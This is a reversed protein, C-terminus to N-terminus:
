IYDESKDVDFMKIQDDNRNTKAMKKKFNDVKKSTFLHSVASYQKGYKIILDLKDVLQEESYICRLIKYLKKKGTIDDLIEKLSYRPNELMHRVLDIRFMLTDVNKPSSFIRFELTDGTIHVARYHGDSSWYEAFTKGECFRNNVRRPYMTYLLPLYGQIDVLLERPTRRVDSVHIHGGCNSSHNANVLDKVSEISLKLKGSFKADLPLIPSVLEFGSEENLSGDHEVIWGTAVLLKSAKIEKRVDCDEKEIEIGIRLSSGESRDSRGSGSHYDFLEGDSDRSVINEMCISCFPEDDVRGSERLDITGNCEFCSGAHEICNECFYEIDGYYNERAQLSRVQMTRYCFRCSMHGESAEIQKLFAYIADFYYNNLVSIHLNVGRFAEFAVRSSDANLSFSVLLLRSTLKLDEVVDDIQEDDYSRWGGLVKRSIAYLGIFLYLKQKYDFDTQSIITYYDSLFHNNMLGVQVRPVDLRIINTDPESNFVTFVNVIRQAYKLVTESNSENVFSDSPLGPNDRTGWPNDMDRLFRAVALDDM